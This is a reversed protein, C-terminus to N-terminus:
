CNDVSRYVNHLKKFTGINLVYKFLPEDKFSEKGRQILQIASNFKSQIIFHKIKKLMDPLEMDEIVESHNFPELSSDLFLIFYYM